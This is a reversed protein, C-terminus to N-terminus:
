ARAIAAQREQDYASLVRLTALSVDSDPRRGKRRTGALRRHVLRAVPAPLARAVAATSGSTRWTAM